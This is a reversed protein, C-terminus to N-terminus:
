VFYRSAINELVADIFSTKVIKFHTPTQLKDVTHGKFEGSGSKMDKELSAIFTPKGLPNRDDRIDELSSVCEDVAVQLGFM